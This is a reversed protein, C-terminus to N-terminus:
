ESYPFLTQVNGGFNQYYADQDNKYVQSKPVKMGLGQNMIVRIQNLTVLNIGSAFPVVHLWLSSLTVPVSCVKM